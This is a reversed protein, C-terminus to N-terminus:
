AISVEIYKCAEKCAIKYGTMINTPHLKEKIM